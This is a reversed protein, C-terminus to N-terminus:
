LEYAAARKSRWRYQEEAFSPMGDRVAKSIAIADDVREREEKTADVIQETDM